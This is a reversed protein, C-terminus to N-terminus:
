NGDCDTGPDFIKGTEDIAVSVNSSATNTGFVAVCLSSGSGELLEYSFNTTEMQDDNVFLIGGPSVSLGLRRFDESYTNNASFYRIQARRIVGLTNFAEAKFAEKKQATLVPIALSALTGLIILVVLVEILSFGKNM